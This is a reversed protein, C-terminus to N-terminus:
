EASHKMINLCYDDIQIKQKERAEFFAATQLIFIMENKEITSALRINKGYKTANKFIMQLVM